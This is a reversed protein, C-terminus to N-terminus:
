GTSGAERCVTDEHVGVEVVTQAALRASFLAEPSLYLRLGSAGQAPKLETLNYAVPTGGGGARRPDMELDGCQAYTLIVFQKIQEATPVAHARLFHCPMLTVSRSLGDGSALSCCMGYLIIMGSLPVRMIKAAGEGWAEQADAGHFPVNTCQKISNVHHPLRVNGVASTQQQDRILYVTCLPMVPGPPAATRWCASASQCRATYARM